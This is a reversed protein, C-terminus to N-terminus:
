INTIHLDVYWDWPLLEIVNTQNKQRKPSLSSIIPPFPRLEPFNMHAISVSPVILHQVLLKEKNPPHKLTQIIQLPHIM